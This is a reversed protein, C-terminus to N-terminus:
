KGERKNISVETDITGALVEQQLRLMKECRGQLAALVREIEEERMQRLLNELKKKAEEMKAIADAQNKMADAPKGEAIKGEAKKQDYGAEEVRKGSQAIQDTEKNPKKDGGAGPPPPSGDGKASSPPPSPSGGGAPTAGGDKASSQGSKSDGAKSEGHK